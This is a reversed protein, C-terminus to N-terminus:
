QNHLPAIGVQVIVISEPMSESGVVFFKGGMMRLDIIVGSFELLVVMVVSGLAVPTIVEVPGSAGLLFGFCFVSLAVGMRFPILRILM